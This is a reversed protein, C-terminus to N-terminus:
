YTPTEDDRGGERGGEKRGERGGERGRDGELNGGDRLKRRGTSIPSRAERRSVKPSSAPKDGEL